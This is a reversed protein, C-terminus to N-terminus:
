RAGAKRAPLDPVVIARHKLAVYAGQTLVGKEVLEAKSRYPRGAVIKRALEADVGPLTRLQQVGAHNLDVAPAPKAGLAPGALALGALLGWVPARWYQRHGATAMM